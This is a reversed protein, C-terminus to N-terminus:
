ALSASRTRIPEMEHAEAWAPPGVTRPVPGRLPWTRRMGEPQEKDARQFTLPCYPQKQRRRETQEGAVGYRQSLATLCLYYVSTPLRPPMNNRRNERPYTSTSRTASPWSGTVALRGRRRSPRDVLAGDDSHWRRKFLSVADCFVARCPVSCTVLLFFFPTLHTSPFGFVM